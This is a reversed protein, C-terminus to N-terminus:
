KQLFAAIEKLPYLFLAPMLVSTSRRSSRASM